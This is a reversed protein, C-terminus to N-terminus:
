VLEATKKETQKNKLQLPFFFTIILNQKQLFHPM